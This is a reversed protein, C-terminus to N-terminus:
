RGFLAAIAAHDFRYHQQHIDDDIDIAGREALLAKCEAEGLQRLMALVKAENRPRHHVLPRRHALDIGVADIEEGYLRKLLTENGLKLLEGDTLSHTKAAIALWADSHRHSDDKDPCPMSQLICGAAATATGSMRIFSPRQESSDLYVGFWADVDDGDVPTLSQYPLGEGNDLEVLLRAGARQLLAAFAQPTTADSLQHDAATRAIGSLRLDDDCEILLLSCPAFASDACRIQLRVRGTSKLRGALYAAALALKGLTTAVVAPYGRGAILSRYAADLRVLAGHALGNGVYFRQLSDADVRNTQASQPQTM